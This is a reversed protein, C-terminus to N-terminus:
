TLYKFKSKSYKFKSKFYKFNSKSYKFKSQFYKFILNWVNTQNATVDNINLVIKDVAAQRLPAHAKSLPITDGVSISFGDCQGNFLPLTNAQWIYIYVVVSLM